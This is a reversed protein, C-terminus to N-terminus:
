GRNEAAQLAGHQAWEAADGSLDVGKAALANFVTADRGYIDARYRIGEEPDSWVTRYVLHVEVPKELNVHREKKSRLWGDFSAQPNDYQGDLLELALDIPQELRVCGNSFARADKKFYSQAPTDHLYISFENPFMFKVRGLANDLSPNQKVRFPFSEDSYQTFNVLRPDIKKGSRTYLSMGNRDLVTPDKRLKPLYVRTAISDPIHWTPNVVMYTMEDSFEPTRTEEADGVVTRSHWVPTDGIYMTASYDPINAMIRREGLDHNLWRMRELNVLVQKLRDEPSANMAQFTRFGAVGDDILGYDRQFTKVEAALADDFVEPDEVSQEPGYGLRQLRGRLDVVRLDRDGPHLTEGTPMKAGWPNSELMSRLRLHEAILERYEPAQPEMDALVQDVTSSSLRSLIDADDARVTKIAMEEDLSIPTLIGASLDGALQLFVDMAAMEARVLVAPDAAEAVTVVALDYRDAPLGHIPAEAVAEALLEMSESWFFEFDRLAYFEEVTERRGPELRSIGYMLAAQEPTFVPAQELATETVPAAEELALAQAQLDQVGVISSGLLVAGATVRVISFEM